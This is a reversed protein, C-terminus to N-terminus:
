REGFLDLDQDDVIYGEDVALSKGLAASTALEDCRENHVNGTHGKVWRWEIDHVSLVDYVRKWLDINKLPKKDAKTWGRQQWGHIWGNNMANIVYRSDSVVEVLCPVKLSELAMIVALLEMRNNTTEVYGGSLEKKLDGSLLLAGYGGPGPNGRSSGDTYILVKKM